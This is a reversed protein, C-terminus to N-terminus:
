RGMGQKAAEREWRVRGHLHTELFQLYGPHLRALSEIRAETIKVNMATYKARVLEQCQSLVIRRYHEAYAFGSYLAALLSPDDDPEPYEIEGLKM